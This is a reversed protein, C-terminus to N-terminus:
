STRLAQSSMTKNQAVIINIMEAKTIENGNEESTKTHKKYKIIANSGTRKNYEKAITKLRKFQMTAVETSILNSEDVEQFGKEIEKHMYREM